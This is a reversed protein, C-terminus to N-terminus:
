VSGEEKGEYKSHMEAIDVGAAELQDELSQMYRKGDQRRLLKQLYKPWDDFARSQKDKFNVKDQFWEQVYSLCALTRKKNSKNEGGAHLMRMDYVVASGLDMPTAVLLWKSHPQRLTAEYLKTWHTGVVFVTPGMELPIDHLPVFSILGHPPLDLRRTSWLMGVDAHWHQATSHPLSTIHSFDDLEFKHTGLLVDALQLLPPNAVLKPSSFPEVPPYKVEYRGPSRQHSASRNTVEPTEAILTLYEEVQINTEAQLDTLFEKDFSDQLVVIGCLTIIEFAEIIVLPSLRGRAIDQPPPKLTIKELTNCHTAVANSLSDLENEYTQFLSRRRRSEERRIPGLPHYLRDDEDGVACRVHAARMNVLQRRINKLSATASAVGPHLRLAFALCAEAEELLRLQEETSIVGDSSAVRMFLSVGYHEWFTSRSPNDELSERFMNYTLDSGGDQEGSQIQRVAERNVHPSNKPFPERRTKHMRVLDRQVFELRPVARTDPKTAAPTVEKPKKETPKVKKKKTKKTRKKSKKKKKTVKKKKQKTKKTKKVKKKKPQQKRPPRAERTDMVPVPVDEIDFGTMDDTGVFLSLDATVAHLAALCLM